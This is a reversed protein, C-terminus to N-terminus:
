GTTRKRTLQYILLLLFVVQLLPMVSLWYSEVLARLLQGDGALRWSVRLPTSLVLGVSRLLGLEVDVSMYDRIRLAWDALYVVLLLSILFALASTRLRNLFVLPIVVLLGVLGIASRLVHFLGSWVSDVTVVILVFAVWSAAMLVLLSSKNRLM